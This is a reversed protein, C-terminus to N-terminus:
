EPSNDRKLIREIRERDEATITEVEAAIKDTPKEGATDRLSTFAAVDKQEIARALMAATMADQKTAGEPLNYAEIEEATAKQALMIKVTEQISRRQKLTAQLAEGGARQIEIDDSSLIKLKGGSATRWTKSQNIVGNPLERYYSDFIDDPIIKNNKEDIEITIAELDIKGDVTRPVEPLDAASINLKKITKDEM